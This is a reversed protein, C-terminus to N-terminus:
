AARSLPNLDFYKGGRGGVTARCDDTLLATQPAGSPLAPSARTSAMVLLGSWLALTSVHMKNHILYIRRIRTSLIPRPFHPLPIPCPKLRSPPTADVGVVVIADEKRRRVTPMGETRAIGRSARGIVGTRLRPSAVAVSWATSSKCELTRGREAGCGGLAKRSVYALTYVRLTRM